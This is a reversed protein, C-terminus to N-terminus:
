QDATMLPIMEAGMMITIISMAERGRIMPAKVIERTHRQSPHAAVPTMAAATTTNKTVNHYYDEESLLPRADDVIDRTTADFQFRGAVAGTKCGRKPFHLNLSRTGRVAFAGLRTLDPLFCSEAFNVPSTTLKTGKKNDGM